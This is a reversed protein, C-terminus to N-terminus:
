APPKGLNTLRQRIRQDNPRKTLAAQYRAVAKEKDGKKEYLDGLQFDIETSNANFEQNMLLLSIAADVKGRDALSRSVANVPGETYDYRGNGMTERLKRYRAIASDPGFKDVAEAIVTEITGPIPSGRHCTVCQIRVGEHRQPLAALTVRNLTDTMTLMFRAKQKEIKDDLAPRMRPRGGPQAAPEEVHCYTCNVGLAYTFSRMTALLSDRPIDKPFVKLNEFPQPQGGGGQAVAVQVPVALALVASALISRRVLSRVMM